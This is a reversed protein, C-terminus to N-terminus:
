FIMSHPAQGKALWFYSGIYGFMAKKDKNKRIVDLLQKDVNKQDEKRQDSVVYEQFM